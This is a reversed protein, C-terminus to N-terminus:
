IMKSGETLLSEGAANFTSVKFLASEEGYRTYVVELAVDDPNAADRALQASSQLLLEGTASEVRYNVIEVGGEVVIEEFILHGDVVFQNDVERWFTVGKVEATDFGPIWLQLSTVNCGALPLAFVLLLLPVLARTARRM